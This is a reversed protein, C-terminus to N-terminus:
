DISAFPIRSRRPESGSKRYVAAGGVRIVAIPLEVPLTVVYSAKSGANDVAISDSAVSFAVASDSTEVRALATPELAIEIVGEEQAALFAVVLRGAPQVAIGSAPPTGPTPREDNPRLSEVLRVAGERLPSGPWAAVVAGATLLIAISAAKLVPSAKRPIRRRRRQVLEIIEDATTAPPDGVELSALAARNQEVLSEIRAERVACAPCGALHTRVSEARDPELEGDILALLEAENPHM